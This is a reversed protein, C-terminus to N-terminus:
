NRLFEAVNKSQQKKTAICRDITELAQQATRETGPIVHQSLFRDVDSRSADDCFNQTSGIVSPLGQFV